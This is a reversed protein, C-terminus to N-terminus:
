TQLSHSRSSPARPSSVPPNVRGARWRSGSRGGISKHYSIPCFPFVVGCRPSSGVNVGSVSEMALGKVPEVSYVHGSPLHHHTKNFATVIRAQISCCRGRRSASPIPCWFSSSRDRALGRQEDGAPLRVWPVPLAARQGGGPRRQALSDHSRSGNVWALNGNSQCESSTVLLSDCISGGNVRTQKFKEGSQCESWQVSVFM